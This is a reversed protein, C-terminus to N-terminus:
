AKIGITGSPVMGIKRRAVDPIPRFWKDVSITEAGGAAAKFTMIFAYNDNSASSPTFKARVAAATTQSLSEIANSPRNGSNFTELYNSYGTGVSYFAATQTADLHMAAAFVDQNDTTPTVDSGDPCQLADASAAIGSNTISTHQDLPASADRGSFEIVGLGRRIVTSSFTATIITPGGTLNKGYFTCASITDGQTDLQIDPSSNLLTYTNGKDDTISSILSSASGWSVIGAILGGSAVPADLTLALTTATAQTQAGKKQVFAMDPWGGVFTATQTVKITAKAM